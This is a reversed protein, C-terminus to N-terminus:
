NGKQLNGIFLLMSLVINKPMRKLLTHSVNYTSNLILMETFEAPFNYFFDKSYDIVKLVDTLTLCTSFHYKTLFFSCSLSSIEPLISTLFWTLTRIEMTNKQTHWLRQVFLDNLLVSLMNYQLVSSPAYGGLKEEPLQCRGQRFVQALM